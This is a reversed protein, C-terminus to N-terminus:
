FLIRSATTAANFKLRKWAWASRTCIDIMACITLTKCAMIRVSPNSSPDFDQDYGLAEVAIEYQKIRSPRGKLSQAVVYELFQVLRPSDTFDRSAVIRRLQSTIEEKELDTM